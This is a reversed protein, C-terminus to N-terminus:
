YHLELWTCTLVAVATLPSDTPLLTSYAVTGSDCTLIGHLYIKAHLWGVFAARLSGSHSLQNLLHLFSSAAFFLQADAHRRFSRSYQFAMPHLAYRQTTQMTYKRPVPPPCSLDHHRPFLIINKITPFHYGAGGGKKSFSVVRWM